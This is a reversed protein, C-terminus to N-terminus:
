LLACIDNLRNTGMEVTKWNIGDPSCAYMGISKYASGGVAIFKGNIFRLRLWEGNANPPTLLSHETWNTGDTSTFIRGNGSLLVFKGNGYVAGYFYNSYYGDLSPINYTAWTTGDTSTFIRRNGGIVYKGNGYAISYATNPFKSIYTWTSGNTSTLFENSTIFVFKGNVFIIETASSLNKGTNLKSCVGWTIGNTSTTYRAYNINVDADGVAVFVGNGYAVSVLYDLLGSSPKNKISVPTSWNTGDTSSTVYGSLGRYNGGVAVYKGNGYTVSKWRNKGVIMDIDRMKFNTIDDTFPPTIPKDLEEVPPISSGYEEEKDCGILLGACLVMVYFNKTKM